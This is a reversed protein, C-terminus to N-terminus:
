FNFTSKLAWLNWDDRPLTPNQEFQNFLRNTGKVLHLEAKLSWFDTANYRVSFQTDKMYANHPVPQGDGDPNDADGIYVSYTLGAEFRELFRRSATVYWGYAKSNSDSRQEIMGNAISSVEQGQTRMAEYEAAFTWQEWFYEISHRAVWVDAKNANVIPAGALMPVPYALPLNGETRLKIDNYYSHATGLRLGSLAPRWWLQLGANKDSSIDTIRAGPLQAAVLTQAYGGIGGDLTIDVMGAYAGYELSQNGPLEFAGYLSFGDVSAGFDRYRQDYLGAPLLISSRAVDIDQIENYIGHPRKVRGVRAGFKESVNYDAFLYDVMPEFDGYPGLEFTFLQGAVTTRDLPSWSANIGAEAFDFAGERTDALYNYESSKLYGHSLFGGFSIDSGSAHAALAAAASATLFRLTSTNM